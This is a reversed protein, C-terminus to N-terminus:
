KGDVITCRYFISGTSSYDKKLISYIFVLKNNNLHNIVEDHNLNEDISYTKDFYIFIPLIPIIVNGNRLLDISKKIINSTEIEDNELNKAFRDVNDINTISLQNIQYFYTECDIEKNKLKDNLESIKEEIEM